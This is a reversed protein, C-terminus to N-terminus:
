RQAKATDIRHGALDESVGSIEWYAQLEVATYGRCGGRAKAQNVVLVRIVGTTTVILNYRKRRATSISFTVRFLWPSESPFTM